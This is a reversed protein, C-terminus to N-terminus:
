FRERFRVQAVVRGNVVLKLRYRGRQVPGLGIRSTGGHLVTRARLRRVIRWKGRRRELRGSLRVPASVRLRLQWRGNRRVVRVKSLRPAPSVAAPSPTDARVQATAPRSTLGRLDTAVYQFSDPGSYGPAPTYAASAHLGDVGPALAVTGHLPERTVMFRLPGAASAWVYCSKSGAGPVCGGSRRAPVQQAVVTGSLQVSAGGSVDAVRVGPIERTVQTDNNASNSELVCHLPNAEGRVVVRGPDLGTIDVWQRELQATYIDAGGPSLGMRVTSAGPHNAACWTEGHAGTVSPAFWHAPGFSDFMCFGVKDSVRTSGGAVVSYRAASSFHWHQHTKEKAYVLSAGGGLEVGGSPTEDPKPAVPPEGGSYIAQEVSGTPGRFLDLTGGQNAIVADFRYLLKGPEEYADVFVPAVSSASPEGPLRIVLDPENTVAAAPSAGAALAALALAISAAVRV